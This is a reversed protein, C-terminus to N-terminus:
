LRKKVRIIAKRVQAEATGGVVNHAAISVALSIAKFVDKGIKPSFKQYEELSLQELSVGKKVAYNVISGTIKHAERFPLAKGVLYNALDTATSYGDLAANNMKDRNFTLSSWLGTLVILSDELTEVTAFLAQKDEQLDRNYTLPLGKITTLIAMLNGIVGGTKGRVLEPIDPNKKQPMISSGTSYADNLSIFGFPQSNWIILEESMRSLHVMLLAAVAQFEVIFDRDAVADMSNESIKAFGLAVALKKRDIKFTTGALAASGLPMVDVRVACDALREKDRLFMEVYALLHHSLLVPQAAQLHTYGPMVVGMNKEALGILTQTLNNILNDINLIAEKLYLRIDTAVQDNRSKGTHIKKAVDGIKKILLAEINMHIDELEFDFEVKGQEIEQALETIASNIQKLEQATLIGAEKLAVAYAANLKLDYPYLRYDYSISETFVKVTQATEQEFRGGWLKSM